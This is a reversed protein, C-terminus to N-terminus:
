YYFSKFLFVYMFEVHQVLVNNHILVMRNIIDIQKNSYAIFPILPFCAFAM